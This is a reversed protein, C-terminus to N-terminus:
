HWWGNAEHCLFLLLALLLAVGWLDDAVVCPVLQSLFSPLM